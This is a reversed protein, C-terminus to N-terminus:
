PNYEIEYVGEYPIKESDLSIIAKEKDNKSILSSIGCGASINRPIPILKTNVGEKKLVKDSSMADGVNDFTIILKKNEM